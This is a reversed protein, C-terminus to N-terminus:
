NKSAVGTLDNMLMEDQVEANKLTFMQPHRPSNNSMWSQIRPGDKDSFNYFPLIDKMTVFLQTLVTMYRVVMEKEAGFFATNSKKRM